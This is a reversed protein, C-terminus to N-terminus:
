GSHMVLVNEPLQELEASQEMEMKRIVQLDESFSLTELQIVNFECSPFMSGYMEHSRYNPMQPNDTFQRDQERLEHYCCFNVDKIHPNRNLTKMLCLANSNYATIYNDRQWDTNNKVSLFYLIELPSDFVFLKDSGGFHNFTYGTNSNPVDGQYKGINNEFISMKYGCTINGSEDHGVFVANHYHSDEYLKGNEIFFGSVNKEIGMSDLLRNLIYMNKDAQPFSIGNERAKNIKLLNEHLANFKILETMAALYNMNFYQKVFQITGGGKKLATDYFEHSNKNINVKTGNDNIWYHINGDFEVKAGKHKLYDIINTNDCADKEAQTFNIYM